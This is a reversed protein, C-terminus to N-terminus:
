VGSSLGEAAPQGSRCSARNGATASSPRDDISPDTDEHDSDEGSPRLAPSPPEEHLTEQLSSRSPHLKVPLPSGGPLKKVKNTGLAKIQGIVSPPRPNCPAHPRMSPKM